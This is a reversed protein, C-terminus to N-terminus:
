PPESSDFKRATIFIPVFKYRAHITAYVDFIRSGSTHCQKTRGSAM